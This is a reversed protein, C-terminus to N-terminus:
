MPVDAAFLGTPAVSRAEHRLLWQKNLLGGAFGTLKGGAGIVRHCPVVIALPNAGNARGVARVALANM